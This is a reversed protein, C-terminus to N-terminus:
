RFMNTGTLALLSESSGASVQLYPRFAMRMSRRQIHSVIGSVLDALVAYPQERHQDVQSLGSSERYDSSYRSEPNFVWNTPIILPFPNVVSIISQIYLIFAKPIAPVHL